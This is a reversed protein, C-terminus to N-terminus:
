LGWDRLSASQPVATTLRTRQTVCSVMWDRIYGDVRKASTSAYRALPSQSADPPEDSDAEITLPTIRFNTPLLEPHKIRHGLVHM